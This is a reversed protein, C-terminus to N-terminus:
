GTCRSCAPRRSRRAWAASTPPRCPPRRTPSCACAGVPRARRVAGDAAADGLHHARRPVRDRRHRAMRDLVDRPYAFSTELLVAAGVRAAMLVQFLGYDFALPLLCAIVDDDRLGLYTSISWANHVLNRHTLMVGKPRGTSGSTYILAGLDADIM